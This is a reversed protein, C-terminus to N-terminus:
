TILGFIKEILEERVLVQFSLEVKEVKGEVSSFILIITKGNDVERIRKMHYQEILHEVFFLKQLVDCFLTEFQAIYCILIRM